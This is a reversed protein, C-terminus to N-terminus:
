RVRYVKIWKKGTIKLYSGTATTRGYWKKSAAHKLKGGYFICIHRSGDKKTYTIIDGDKLESAKITRKVSLVCKFKDSTALREQQDALKRPFKSDIGLVRICTGVFVDCSAGLRQPKGWSSRDPYAKNLASKYEAKPAGTPYKAKAPAKAYALANAKAGLNPAKSASNQKNIWRQLAKVSEAGFYGDQKVGVMKQVAKSTATGWSGDQKVGAKKQLAKVTGIGLIGDTGVGLAKQLNAISNYGFYGDVEITGLKFSGKFHPRFVGCVYKANRTKQAVIGGSTNGEITYIQTDSKRERVFGIHNPVGNPEWDFYIIDMPLALYVPIEALNKRCWSMSTPCYTYRKGNFFLSADGGENAIYCVFANCWAAGAPLGCFKRFRSGGQGLYKQAIKLLQTNTKGM